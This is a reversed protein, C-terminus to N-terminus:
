RHLSPNAHQQLKNQLPGPQLLCRLEPLPQMAEKHQPSKDEEANEMEYINHFPYLHLTPLGRDLAAMEEFTQFSELECIENESLPEGGTLLEVQRAVARLNGVLFAIRGQSIFKEVRYRLASGFRIERRRTNPRSKNLLDEPLCHAVCVLDLYNLCSLLEDKLGLYQWSLGLYSHYIPPDDEFRRRGQGLTIDEPYAQYEHREQAPLPQSRLLQYEDSRKKTEIDVKSSASLGEIPVGGGMVIPPEPPVPKGLTIRPPLNEKDPTESRNNANPLSLRFPTRSVVSLPMAIKWNGGREKPQGEWAYILFKKLDAALDKDIFGNRITSETEVPLPM